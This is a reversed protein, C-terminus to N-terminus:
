YLGLRDETRTSSQRVLYEKRVYGIAGSPRTRVKFWDGNSELVSISTGAGIQAKSAAAFRPEERLSVVRRTKYAMMEGPPEERKKTVVRDFRKKKANDAAFNPKSPMIADVAVVSNGGTTPAPANTYGPETRGHALLFYAIPMLLLGVVAASVGPAPFTKPKWTTQWARRFWSPWGPNDDHGYTSPTTISEPAPVQDGPPERALDKASDVASLAQSTRNREQHLLTEARLKSAEVDGLRKTLNRIQSQLEALEVGSKEMRKQKEALEREFSQIKTRMQEKMEHISSEKAQLLAAKQRLVEQVRQDAKERESVLEAREQALRSMKGMLSDLETARAALLSQKEGLQGELARIQEGSREQLKKIEADRVQLLATKQTLEEHLLRGDRDKARGLEALQANLEVVKSGIEKLDKERSELLDQKESLQTELSRSTESFRHELANLAAERTQLLETNQKVTDELSRVAQDRSASLEALQKKFTLLESERDQLLTAKERLQSELARPPIHEELPQNLPYARTQERRGEQEASKSALFLIKKVIEKELDNPNLLGHLKDIEDKYPRAGDLTINILLLRLSSERDLPRDDLFRLLVKADEYRGANLFLEIESFIQQYRSFKAMRRDQRDSQDMPFTRAVKIGPM